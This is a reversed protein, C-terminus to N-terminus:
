GFLHSDCSDLFVFLQEWQGLAHRRVFGANNDRTVLTSEGKHIVVGRLPTNMAFLRWFLRLLLDACFLESESNNPSDATKMNYIQPSPLATEIKLVKHAIDHCRQDCINTWLLSNWVSTLQM